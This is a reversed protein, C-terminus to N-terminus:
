NLSQKWWNKQSHKAHNASMRRHSKRLRMPSHSRVRHKRTVRLPKIGYTQKYITEYRKSSIPVGSARNTYYRVKSRKSPISSTIGTATEVGNAGDTLLRSLEARLKHTNSHAM